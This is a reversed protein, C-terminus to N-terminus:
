WINLIEAETLQRKETLASALREISQWNNHVLAKATVLLEGFVISRNLRNDAIATLEILDTAGGGALKANLSHRDCIWEAVPGGWLAIARKRYYNIEGVDYEILGNRRSTLRMIEVSGGLALVCGAHGAEHLAGEHYVANKKQKYKRM